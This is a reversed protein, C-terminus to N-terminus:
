ELILLSELIQNFANRYTGADEQPAIGIVYLFSGDPLHAASVSVYEFARTVPSVNSVTTTLGERGGITVRQYAPTWILHANGRGFATLLAQLDRKLDGTVSRAVGVQLGHTFAASGNPLLLFGGEPAVAVTNGSPLREWNAPVSLRMLDGATASRYNGAPVAVGYGLPGIDGARGAHGGRPAPPGAALRDQIWALTTSLPRAAAIEFLAGERMIAEARSIEDADGKPDPHRVAWTRGGEAANTSGIAHMMAVLDDPDYGARAVVQATLLDAQREYEPGYMVFYSSTAFDGGRTFISGNRGTLAAGIAPGTIAGLQYREGDTAQATAHRLAVHSLEHGILGALWGEMDALEIMGRSVFVPGGPLAFSTLERTNLVAFTYEFGKPQLEKPIANVLRRGLESLYVDVRRDTLIPLQARVVAAAERGLTVDEVPTFNNVPPTIAAQAATTGALLVVLLGFTRWIQGVPSATM